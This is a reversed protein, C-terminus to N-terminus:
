YQPVIVVPIDSHHLVYDSTSGLFVKELKALRRTGLIIFTAMMEKSATVLTEGPNNSIKYLASNCQIEKEACIKTYKDICDQEFNKEDKKKLLEGLKAHSETQDRDSIVHCLIVMDGLVYLSNIYYNFALECGASNDIAIVIIRKNKM